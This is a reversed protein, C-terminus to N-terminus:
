VACGVYLSALRRDCCPKMYYYLGSMRLAGLVPNVERRSLVNMGKDDLFSSLLCYFDREIAERKGDVLPQCVTHCGKEGLGGNRLPKALFIQEVTGVDQSLCHRQEADIVIQDATSAPRGAVGNAYTLHDKSKLSQKTLPLQVQGEVLM